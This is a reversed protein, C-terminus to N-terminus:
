IVQFRRLPPFLFILLDSLRSHIALFLWLDRGLRSVGEHDEQGKQKAERPPQSGSDREAM